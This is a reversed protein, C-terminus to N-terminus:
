PCCWSYYAGGMFFVDGCTNGPGCCNYLGYQPYYCITGQCGTPYYTVLSRSFGGECAALANAASFLLLGSALTAALTSPSFLKKLGNM